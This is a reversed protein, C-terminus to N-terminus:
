GSPPVQHDMLLPTDWAFGVCQIGTVNRHMFLNCLESYNLKERAAKVTSWTPDQINLVAALQPVARLCALTHVADVTLAPGQAESILGEFAFRDRHEEKLLPHAHNDLAPYYFCASRLERLEAHVNPLQM